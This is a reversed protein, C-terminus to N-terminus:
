CSNFQIGVPEVANPQVIGTKRRHQQKHELVKKPYDTKLERLSLYLAGRQNTFMMSEPILGAKFPIKGIVAYTQKAANFFLSRSLLYGKKQQYKNSIAQQHTLLKTYGCYWM